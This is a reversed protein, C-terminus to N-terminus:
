RGAEARGRINGNAPQRRSPMYTESFRLHRLPFHLRYLQRFVRALPAAARRNVVLDGTQANGAFDWYSVTLLRLSSLGVPCGAHWFPGSLQARQTGNLPQIASHFPPLALVLASLAFIRM